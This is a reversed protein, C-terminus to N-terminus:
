SLGVRAPGNAPQAGESGLAGALNAAAHEIVALQELVAARGFSATGKLNYVVSSSALLVPLLLQLDHAEDRQGLGELDVM